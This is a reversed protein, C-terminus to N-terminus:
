LCWAFSNSATLLQNQVGSCQVSGAASVIHLRAARCVAQQSPGRGAGLAQLHVAVAEAAAWCGAGVDCALSTARTAAEEQPAGVVYPAM